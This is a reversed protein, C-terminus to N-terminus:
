PCISGPDLKGKSIVELNPVSITATKMCQAVEYPTANQNNIMHRLAQATVIPAAYSTAALTQALITHSGPAALQISGSGYNSYSAKANNNGDLAAVGIVNKLGYFMSNFGSPFHFCVDTDLGKNGASAVVMTRSVDNLAEVHLISPTKAYYGWSMNIIHAGKSKAYLTACVAHYLSTNGDKDFIKLDMLKVNPSGVSNVILKSVITGHANINSNASQDFTFDFGNIDDSLCNDDNDQGDEDERENIWINDTLGLEQSRDIGSDIIAVIRDAAGQRRERVIHKGDLTLGPQEMTIELNVFATGVPQGLDNQDIDGQASALRAELDIDEDDPYEAMILDYGCMCKYVEKAGNKKLNSITTTVSTTDKLDRDFKIVVQNPIKKAYKDEDLPCDTCCSALLYTVLLFLLTPSLNLGSKKM